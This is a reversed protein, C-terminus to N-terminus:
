IGQSHPREAAVALAVAGSGTGLDAVCYPRELPIVQLALEVLRETEPRPILTDKTVTLELSWFERRGMLYAVPEGAARRAILDYFHQQQNKHLMREPRARLHARAVGLVQALLIEAELVAADSRGALTKVAAHLCNQISFPKAM